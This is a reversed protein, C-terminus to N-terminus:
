AEKEKPLGIGVSTLWEEIENRAAKANFGYWAKREKPHPELTNKFKRFAGKGNLIHRLEEQLQLNEIQGTFERMAAFGKQPDREPIRVYRDKELLFVDLALEIEDEMWEPVNLEEDLEVVEYESMDDDFNESLVQQARKLIDESLIIVEGTEIDLFYEFADRVVDEMAKQIEDFDVNIKKM